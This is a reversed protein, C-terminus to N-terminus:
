RGDKTPCFVHHLCIIDALMNTLEVRLWCSNCLCLVGLVMHITQNAYIKFMVDVNNM